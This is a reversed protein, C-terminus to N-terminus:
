NIVGLKKSFEALDSYHLLHVRTEEALQKASITFGQNSVVAAIDVKAFNKGAIIEQVAKNGVPKAYMKCQFVVKINGFSAFIDVGQDGSVRTNSATWGNKNLLSICYNEFERATM